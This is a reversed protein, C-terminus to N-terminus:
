AKGGPLPHQDLEEEGLIVVIKPDSLEDGRAVSGERRRIRSIWSESSGTEVPLM